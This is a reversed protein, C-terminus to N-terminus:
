EPTFNICKITRKHRALDKKRVSLGCHSCTTKVNTPNAVPEEVIENKLGEGAKEIRSKFSPDKKIYEKELEILRTEWEKTLKKNKFTNYSLNTFPSHGMRDAFEEIEEVNGANEWLTTAASKRIFRVTIVEGYMRTFVYEIDTGLNSNYANSENRMGFLNSDVNLKRAKIHDQLFPKVIDPVQFMQTGMAKSTKYKNFVFWLPTLKSDVLLYNNSKDLVEINKINTDTIKMFAYDDIRRPAQLGYVAALARQTEIRMTNGKPLKKKLTDNITALVKSATFDFIKAENEESLGAKNLEKQSIAAKTAHYSLYRYDKTYGANKDPIRSLVNVFPTLNTGFSSFGPYKDAVKQVFSEIHISQLFWLGEKASKNGFLSRKEVQTLDLGQFVKNIIEKVKPQKTLGNEAGYVQRMTNDMLKITNKIFDANESKAAQIEADTYGKVKPNKKQLRQFWLPTIQPESQTVAYSRILSDSKVLPQQQVRKSIIQPDKDIESRLRPQKSKTKALLDFANLLEENRDKRYQKLYESNRIKFDQSIYKGDIEYGGDKEFAEQKKERYKKSAAASKSKQIENREVIKRAKDIEVDGPMTKAIRNTKKRAMM